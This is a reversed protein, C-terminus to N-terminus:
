SLQRVWITHGEPDEVRIVGPMCEAYKIAEDAKMFHSSYMTGSGWGNVVTKYM